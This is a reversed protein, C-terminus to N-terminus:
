EERVWDRLLSKIREGVLLGVHAIRQIAQHQPPQKLQHLFVFYNM